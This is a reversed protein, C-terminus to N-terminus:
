CKVNGYCAGDASNQPQGTTYCSWQDMCEQTTTGPAENQECAEKLWDSGYKAYQAKMLSYILGPNQCIGEPEHKAHCNCYVVQKFGACFNSATHSPAIGCDDTAGAKVPFISASAFAGAALISFVFGVIVSIVRRQM